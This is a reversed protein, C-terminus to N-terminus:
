VRLLTREQTERRMPMAPILESVTSEDSGKKEKAFSVESIWTSNRIQRWSLCHFHSQGQLLTTPAEKLKESALLGERFISKVLSRFESSGRGGFSLRTKGGPLFKFESYLEGEKMAFPDRGVVMQYLVVGFAWIDIEPGFFPEQRLLCPASYQLTGSSVKQRELPSWRRAFGFDTLKLVNNPFLLINELKIDGHIYGLDHLYELSSVLQRAYIRTLDESLRERATVFEFLDGMCAYEMVIVDSLQMVPSIDLKAFDIERNSADVSQDVPLAPFAVGPIFEIVRVISPHSLYSLINFEDSLTNIEKKRKSGQDQHPIGRIETKPASPVVKLAILPSDPM